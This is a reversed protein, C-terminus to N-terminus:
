DTQDLNDDGIIILDCEDMLGECEEVYEDEDIITSSISPWIPQEDDGNLVKIEYYHQSKIVIDSSYNIKTTSYLDLHKHTKLGEILTCWFQNYQNRNFILIKKIM